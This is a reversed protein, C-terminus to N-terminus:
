VEITALFKVENSTPQRFEPQHLQNSVTMFQKNFLWGHFRHKMHLEHVNYFM